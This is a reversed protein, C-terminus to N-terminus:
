QYRTECYSEKLFFLSVILAVIFCIPLIILAYKYDTVSYFPIGNVISGDSHHRLLLGVIPQFIAGGAIPAMNNFGIATGVVHPHNNDRVLAFSFAQGSASLGFLFLVFYMMPWSINHFAFLGIMAIVGVGASVAMPMCRRKITDSWWGILPSGVGIGVWIMSVAASATTTDVNYLLNLAVCQQDFLNSGVFGKVFQSYDM